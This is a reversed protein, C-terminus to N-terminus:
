ARLGAILNKVPKRGDRQEHRVAVIVDRRRREPIAAPSIAHLDSCDIREQSLQADAMVQRHQRRVLIETVNRVM